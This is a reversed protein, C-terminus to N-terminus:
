RQQENLVQPICMYGGKEILQKVSEWSLGRVLWAVELLCLSPFSLQVVLQLSTLFQVLSFRMIVFSSAHYLHHSIGGQTLRATTEIISLCRRIQKYIARCTYIIM